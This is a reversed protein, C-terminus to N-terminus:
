KIGDRREADTAFEARKKTYYDWFAREQENWAAGEEYDGCFPVCLDVWCALVRKEADTIGKAHGKDLRETFLRSTRSGYKLPPLLTPESASSVWNVYGNKAYPDAVWRGNKDKM